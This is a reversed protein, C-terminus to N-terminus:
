AEYHDEMIRGKIMKAINNSYYVKEVLESYNSRALKLEIQRRPSSRQFISNRRSILKEYYRVKEATRNNVNQVAVDITRWFLESVGYPVADEVDRCIGDFFGIPNYWGIYNIKSSLNSQETLNELADKGDIGVCDEYSDSLIGCVIPIGKKICEDIEILQENQILDKTLIVLSDAEEINAIDGCIKLEIRGCYTEGWRVSMNLENKILSSPNKITEILSFRDIEKSTQIITLLKESGYSVENGVETLDFHVIKDKPEMHLNDSSMIYDNMLVNVVSSLFVKGTNINDSMIMIKLM